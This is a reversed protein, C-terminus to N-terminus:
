HLIKRLYVKGGIRIRLVYTGSKLNGLNFTYSGAPLYGFSLRRVLRGDESYIDAGVYSPSGLSVSIKSGSVWFSVDNEKQEPNEMSIEPDLNSVFADTGGAPTTSYSGSTTPFNSSNTYGAVYVNPGYIAIATAYDGYSGGLFTSAILDTLTPNFESVFVDSIPYTDNFWYDYAFPTTPYDPSSTNGTIFVKGTTPEVAIDYAYDDGSGGITTSHLLSTLDPSFRSVFVDTAGGFFDRGYAGPTTPFLYSSDIGTIYVNGSPDLAIGYAVDGLDGGIFTSAQLNNLTNDFKVVFADYGGNHTQDYAGTTTPFDASQTGGTAFVDGASNIAIGNVFDDYSGGVFRSALLTTLDNSLKSIFGEAFYHNTYGPGTTTPYDLSLTKGGIFVNGSPDVAVTYAYDNDNGGIYTSALLNSLDPNFKSVFADFEGERDEQYAGGTTPYNGSETYGTIFVNGSGDLAIGYAFDEKGGGIYTAASLTSLDPSFKAVFADARGNRSNNWGDTPFNDSWTYGVVYVNGSADVAMDYIYDHFGGGLFSSSTLTALDPDIVLAYRPDYGSVDFSVKKGEVKVEIDLMRAGQYARVNRVSLLPKGDKVVEFGDGSRLIEGGEVRLSIASPDVGPSMLWQFEVKGGQLATLLLDVGPYIGKFLVRRYTPVERKWLAPNDGTFYNFRTPSPMDMSIVPRKSGEFVLEVEGFSISGTRVTLGSPVVKAVVDPPYQGVNQVFIGNLKSVPLGTDVGASM